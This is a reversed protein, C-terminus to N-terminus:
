HLVEPRQVFSAGPYWEQYLMLVGVRIYEVLEFLSSETDEDDVADIEMRSISFIDKIFEDCDPHESQNEGLGGVGLGSIFGACWESLNSARHAIDASDDPLLPQFIIETTQLKAVVDAAILDLLAYAQELQEANDIGGVLHDRIPETVTNNSACIYGTIFGHCEAARTGAEVDALGRDLEDFDLAM